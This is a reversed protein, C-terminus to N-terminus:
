PRSSPTDTRARVNGNPNKSLRTFRLEQEGRAWAIGEELGERLIEFLPPRDDGDAENQIVLQTEM